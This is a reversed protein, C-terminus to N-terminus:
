GGEQILARFRQVGHTTVGDPDVMTNEFELQFLVVVAGIVELAAGNLIRQVHGMVTKCEARGQQRSWSHINLSANKGYFDMTNWDRLTDDGLMVWPMSKTEDVYDYVGGNALALTM